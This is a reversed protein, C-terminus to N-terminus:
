LKIAKMLCLTHLEDIEAKTQNCDPKLRSLLIKREKAFFQNIRTLCGSAPTHQELVYVRLGVPENEEM